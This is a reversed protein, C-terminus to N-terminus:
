VVGFLRAAMALTLLAIFGFAWQLAGIKADFKAELGDVKAGLGDVKTGLNDVKTELNDMRTELGDMRTELGDMRTELGGIRAELRAAEARLDAKTVVGEAFAARLAEASAGAQVESVGAERLRRAYALTDFATEMGAVIAGPAGTDLM